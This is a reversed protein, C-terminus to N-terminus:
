QQPRTLIGLMTISVKNPVTDSIARWMFNQSQDILISRIIIKHNGQLKFEGCTKSGVCLTFLTLEHSNFFVTEILFSQYDPFISSCYMNTRHIDEDIGIPNIFLEVPEDADLITAGDFFTHTIEEFYM